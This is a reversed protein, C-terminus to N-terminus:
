RAKDLLFDKLAEDWTRMKRGAIHAFLSSDLASYEPRAARLDFTKMEVPDLRAEDMGRIKLAARAFQFRTCVGANAIHLVGRFDIQILDAIAHACDVTSTPSCFADIFANVREGNECRSVVTSQFNKGGDGFLCSTRVIVSDKHEELVAMEGELKSRGYVSLPATPDDERYPVRAKGDFVYDTSIHILRAGIHKCARAINFAGGANVSFAQESHDECWDVDTLAACNIVVTPLLREFEIAVRDYDVIDLFEVTSEITHPYKRSMLRSIERGLLGDSGTIFPRMKGGKMETGSGKEDNVMM